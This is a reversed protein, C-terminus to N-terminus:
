IGMRGVLDRCYRLRGLAVGIYTVLFAIPSFMTIALLYGMFATPLERIPIELTGTLTSVLMNAVGVALVIGIFAYVLTFAFGLSVGKASIALSFLLLVTLEIAMFYPGADHPFMMSVVGCAALVVVGLDRVSKPEM